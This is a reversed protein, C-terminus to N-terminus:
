MEVRGVTDAYTVEGLKMSVALEHTSRVLKYKVVERQDSSAFLKM